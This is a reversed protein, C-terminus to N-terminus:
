KEEEKKNLNDWDVGRKLMFERLAQQVIFNMTHADKAAVMRLMKHKSLKLTILFRKFKAM